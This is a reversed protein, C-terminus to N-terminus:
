RVRQPGIEMGSRKRSCMDTHLDINWFRPIDYGLLRPRNHRHLVDRDRHWGCGASGRM